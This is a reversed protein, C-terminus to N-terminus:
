EAQPQEESPKADGSPATAGQPTAPAAPQADTSAPASSEAGAAAPAAATSGEVTKGELAKPAPATESSPSTTEVVAPVNQFLRGSSTLGLKAQLALAISTGMFLIACVTTLKLLFNDAGTAGFLSSSGGGFTAGVDAGKGQQLLILAVLVCSIFVHVITIISVLLYGGQKAM